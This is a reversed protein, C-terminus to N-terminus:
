KGSRRVKFKDSRGFILKRVGRRVKAPVLVSTIRCAFLMLSLFMPYRLHWKGKIYRYNKRLFRTNNRVAWIYWWLASGRWQGGTRETRIHWAVLEPSFVIRAGIRSAEIQASTEERYGNGGYTEDFLVGKDFVWRKWLGVASVFPVNVDRGTDVFFQGRLTAWEFLNKRKDCSPEIRGIAESSVVPVVRGGVIDGESGSLKEAAKRVFEEDLIVDDDSFLLLNGSSLRIASNRASPAGRREPHRSYLLVIGREAAIPAFQDLVNSYDETSGDDLIIIEYVYEQALYSPLVKQLYRKRNFTPIIISVKPEITMQKENNINSGM